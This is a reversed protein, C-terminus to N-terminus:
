DCLDHNESFRKFLRSSAKIVGLFSKVLWSDEILAQLRLVAIVLSPLIKFYKSRRIIMWFVIRSDFTDKLWNEGPIYPNFCLLTDLHSVSRCTWIISFVNSWNVQKSLQIRAVKLNVRCLLMIRCITAILITEYKMFLYAPSTTVAQNDSIDFTKRVNTLPPRRVGYKCDKDM